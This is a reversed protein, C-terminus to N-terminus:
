VRKTHGCKCKVRLCHTKSDFSVIVSKGPIWVRHCKRCFSNKLEPPLKVKHKKILDLAMQVYRKSREEKGERFAKQAQDVLKKVSENVSSKIVKKRKSDM